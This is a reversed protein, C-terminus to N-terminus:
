DAPLGRRVRADSWERQTGVLYIMPRGADVLRLAVEDPQPRIWLSQGNEYRADTIGVSSSGHPPVGDIVVPAGLRFMFEFHRRGGADIGGRQPQEIVEIFGRYGGPVVLVVQPRPDAYLTLTIRDFPWSPLETPGYRHAHQSPAGSGWYLMYGPASATILMPDHGAVRLRARGDASTTAVDPRPMFPWEGYYVSVHAGGIARRTEADLVTVEVERYAHCGAPVFAFIIFLLTPRM